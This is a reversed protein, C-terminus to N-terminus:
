QEINAANVSALAVTARAASVVEQAQAPHPPPPKKQLAAKSGVFLLTM